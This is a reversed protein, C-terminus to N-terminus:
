TQQFVHMNHSLVQGDCIMVYQPGNEERGLAVILMDIVYSSKCSTRFKGTHSIEWLEEQTNPM